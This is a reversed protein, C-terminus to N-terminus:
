KAQPYMQNIIEGFPDTDGGTGEHSDQPVGRMGSERVDRERGNLFSSGQAKMQEAQKVAFQEASMGDKFKAQEALDEFGPVTLADIRQIREREAAQAKQTAAQAAENLVQDYLDKHQTKLEEMTLGMNCDEKNETRVENQKNNLSNVYSLLSKPVSEFQELSMSVHNVIVREANEVETEIDSFMLSDCFGETVAQEGTYWTSSDMLQKIDEDSKGTKLKYCNVISQKIVELEEAMKTLEKAEYYGLIGSKPNHIMFVGNAPIETTTGACSIITAASGAWGDIKVTVETGNEGLEKLRTYIANAAFVDGGGSNIRVVLSKVAGIEKLEKNFIDPTIEDGWWSYSSIDGYLVLEASGEEQGAIFNWFHNIQAATKPKKAATQTPQTPTPKGTRSEGQQGQSSNQDAM